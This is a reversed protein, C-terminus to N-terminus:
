FGGRVLRVMAKQYYESDSDELGGPDASIEGIDFHIGWLTDYGNNPTSSWYPSFLTSGAPHHNPFREQNIPPICATEILSALEKINPLRWDSYGLYHQQNQIQVTQLAQKWTFPTAKGACDPVAQGLSCKAWILGTKKDTVTHNSNATLQSNPTSRIAQDNCGGPSSGAYTNVTTLIMATVLLTKVLHTTPNM